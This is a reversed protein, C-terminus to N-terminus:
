GEPTMPASCQHVICWLEGDKGTTPSPRPRLLTRGQGNQLTTQGSEEETQRAEEERSSDRPPHEKINWQNTDCTWVVETKEEESHDPPRWLAECATLDNQASRRKHRPRHILHWPTKQFVENGSGPDKEATWSDIDMVWMRVLLYVSSISM